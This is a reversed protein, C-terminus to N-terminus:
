QSEGFQLAVLRAYAGGQAMLQAHDGQEVVRGQEIVVIKDANRITSLRHAIVIATRGVLAEALTRLRGVEGVYGSGAGIALLAVLLLACFYPIM